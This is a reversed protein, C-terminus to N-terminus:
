GALGKGEGWTRGQDKPERTCEGGEQLPHVQCCLWLVQEGYCNGASCFRYTLKEEACHQGRLNHLGAGCPYGRQIPAAWGWVSIQATYPRGLGPFERLDRLRQHSRLPAHQSDYNMRWQASRWLWESRFRSSSAIGPPKARQQAPESGLLGGCGACM